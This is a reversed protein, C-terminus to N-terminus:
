IPAREIRSQLAIVQALWARAAKEFEPWAQVSGAQVPKPLKHKPVGCLMGYDHGNFFETRLRAISPEMDLSLKVFTHDDRMYYCAIALEAPRPSTQAQAANPLQKFTM